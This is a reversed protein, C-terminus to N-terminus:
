GKSLQKLIGDLTMAIALGLALEADCASGNEIKGAAYQLVIAIQAYDVPPICRHSFQWAFLENLAAGLDVLASRQSSSKVQENARDFTGGYSTIGFEHSFEQKCAKCSATLEWRGSDGARLVVGDAIVVNDGEVREPERGFTETFRRRSTQEREVANHEWSETADDLISM